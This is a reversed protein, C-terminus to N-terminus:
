RDICFTIQSNRGTDDQEGDTVNRATTLWVTYSCGPWTGIAINDTGASGRAGVGSPLAPALWGSGSACSTISIAWSRLLQHDATYQIGLDTSLPTCCNAGPLTFQLLNLLNVEIWNNIMIKPLSNTLTPEAATAGTVPEAEFIISLTAGNRPVAPPNGATDGPSTSGGGPVATASVFRLLPAGSLIGGNVTPPVIVWGQADPIIVAPPVPGGMPPPPPPPPTAATGGSPAVWITQATAIPNGLSDTWPVVRDGIAVASVAAGTIPVPTPSIAPNVYLFRYRMPSGGGPYQTPCDGILKMGYGSLGDYFGFGPGGHADSMGVPAAWKTLGTGPDIDTNIDFDGVRTFWAHDLTTPQDVCLEVCFCPGANQRDSDRGRSRPEQLLFGGGSGEITFYLDPGGFLEINLSPFPTRMFDIALYDIRFHGTADTIGSGLPDDQTWDVDFASVKV